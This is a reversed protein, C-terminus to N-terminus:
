AARQRQVSCAGAGLQASFSPSPQRRLSTGRRSQPKERGRYPPICSMSCVNNVTFDILYVTYYCVAYLYCICPAMALLLNIM